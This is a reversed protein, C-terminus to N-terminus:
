LFKENRARNGCASVTELFHQFPCNKWSFLSTPLSLPPCFHFQRLMKLIDLRGVVLMLLLVVFWWCWSRCYGPCAPHHSAAQLTNHRSVRRRSLQQQPQRLGGPPQRAPCLVATRGRWGAGCCPPFVRLEACIDEHKQVTKCPVFMKKNCSNELNRNCNQSLM